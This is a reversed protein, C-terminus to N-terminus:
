CTRDTWTVNQSAAQVTLMWARRPRRSVERLSRRNAKVLRCGGRKERSTEGPIGDPQRAALSTLWPSRTERAKEGASSRRMFAGLRERSTKSLYARREPLTPSGRSHPRMPPAWGTSVFRKKGFLLIISKGPLFAVFFRPQLDRLQLPKPRFRFLADSKASDRYSILCCRSVYVVPLTGDPVFCLM